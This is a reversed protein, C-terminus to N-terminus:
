NLLGITQSISTKIAQEVETEPLNIRRVFWCPVENNFKEPVKIEALKYPRLKALFKPIYVAGHGTRVLELAISLMNAGITKTRPILDEPWHDRPRENFLSNPVIYTLQDLKLNGKASYLGFEIPGLEIHDLGPAAIPHTTLGFDIKGMAIQTEIDGPCREHFSMRLHKLEAKKLLDTPIDFCFVEALGIRINASSPMRAHAHLEEVSRIIQKAKEYLALGEQTVIIGRGEPRTLTIQLEQELAKLSKHIGPHSIGCVQAARSLSGSEVLACFHRLKLTDM